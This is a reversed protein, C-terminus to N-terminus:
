VSIPKILSLSLRTVYIPNDRLKTGTFDALGSAAFKPADKTNIRFLGGSDTWGWYQMKM